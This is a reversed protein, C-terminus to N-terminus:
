VGDEKCDGLDKDIAAREAELKAVEAALDDAHAKTTTKLEDPLLNLAIARRVAASVERRIDSVHVQFGLQKHLHFRTGNMIAAKTIEEELYM